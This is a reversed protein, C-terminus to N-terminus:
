ADDYDESRLPTGCGECADPISNEDEGYDVVEGCDCDVRFIPYVRVSDRYESM